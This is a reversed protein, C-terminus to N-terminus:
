KMVEETDIILSCSPCKTTFDNVQDLYTNDVGLHYGCHCQIITMDCIDISVIKTHNDGIIFSEYDNKIDAFDDAHRSNIYYEKTDVVEALAKIMEDKTLDKM